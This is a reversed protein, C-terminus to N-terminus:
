AAVGVKSSLQTVIDGFTRIKMLDKTPIAINFTEEFEGAITVLDLSDVGLDEIRTESTIKSPPLQLRRVLVGRAMEAVEHETM